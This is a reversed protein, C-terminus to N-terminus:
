NSCIGLGNFSGFIYSSSTSVRNDVNPSANTDNSDGPNPSDFPSTTPSLHIISGDNYFIGNNNTITVINTTSSSPSSMGLSLKRIPSSIPTTPHTPPTLSP